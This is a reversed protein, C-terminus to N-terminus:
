YTHMIVNTSGNYVSVMTCKITDISHVSDGKTMVSSKSFFRVIGFYPYPEADIVAFYAKVIINGDSGHLDSTLL